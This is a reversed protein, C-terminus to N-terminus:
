SMKTSALVLAQGAKNGDIYVDGGQMITSNIMELKKVQEKGAAAMADLKAYFENLPVVAEAGAEGITANNIEDTIIGGKALKPGEDGLAFEGIMSAPSDPLLDVINNSLWQVPSYGFGSLIGDALSLVSGVGPIANLALNAVPYAGAKIIDRGLMATDVSGPKDLEQTKAASILSGIDFAGMVATLLPGAFKGLGGLLKGMKGNLVKMPDTVKGLFQGVKSNKATDLLGGGFSKLKGLVGGTKGAAGAAKTAGGAAKAGANAAKSAGGAAKGAASAGQAAGKSAAGAVDDGLGLMKKLPGPIKDKIKKPLFKKLKSGLSNGIASDEVISVRVKDGDVADEIKGNSGFAKKYLKVGGYLAAAAGALGVGADLLSTGEEGEKKDDPTASEGGGLWSPLQASAIADVFTLVDDILPEFKLALKVFSDGIRDQIKELKERNSINADDLAKQSKGYQQQLKGLAAARDYAKGEIKAQKEAQDIRKLEEKYLYNQAEASLNDLKAQKKKEDTIALVEDVQEKIEEKSLGSKGSLAEATAKAAAAQAEQNELGEALKDVSLGVAKALAEQQIVNMGAFDAASINQKAIEEAVKATDGKLAALRAQELNLQKGTLLEAELEAQISSEFDLFSESAGVIDDLTLGLNRAQLAARTIGGPFKSLTLRTKASAKGIDELVESFSIVQDNQVNFLQVQGVVEQTFDQANKGVASTYKLLNAASDAAVGLRETMYSFSLGQDATIAASTGLLKNLENQAKIFDRQSTYAQGSATAINHYTKLLAGAEKKSVNLEMGLTAARDSAEGLSKVFAGIFNLVGAFAIADLATRILHANTAAGKTEIHLERAAAEAKSFASAMEGFIPLSKLFEANALNAATGFFKTASNLDLTQNKAEELTDLFAEATDLSAKLSRSYDKAAKGAEETSVIQQKTKDLANQVVKQQDEAINLAATAEEVETQRQSVVTQLFNSKNILQKNEATIANIADQDESAQAAQLAALNNEIKLQTSSLANKAQGLEVSKEEQLTFAASTAEKRDLLALAHEDAKLNLEKVKLTAEEYVNAARAAAERIGSNDQQAKAIISEIQALGKNSKTAKDILAPYKKINSVVAKSDEQFIKFTASLDPDFAISQAKKQLNEAAAASSEMAFRFSNAKDAAQSMTQGLQSARNIDEDSPGTNNIPEEAM